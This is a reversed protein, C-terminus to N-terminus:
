QLSGEKGAGATVSCATRRCSQPRSRRAAPMFLRVVRPSLLRLVSGDVALDRSIEDFQPRASELTLRRSEKQHLVADVVAQSLESGRWIRAGSTLRNKKKRILASQQYDCLDVARRSVGPRRSTIADNLTGAELATTSSTAAVAQTFRARVTLRTTAREFGLVSKVAGEWGADLPGILM